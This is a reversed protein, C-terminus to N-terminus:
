LLHSSEEEKYQVRHSECHNPWGEEQDLQSCRSNPLHVAVCSDLPVGFNRAAAYVTMGKAVAECAADLDEQTYDKMSALKILTDRPNGNDSRGQRQRGKGRVLAGSTLTADPKGKSCSSEMRTKDSSSEVMERATKNIPGGDGDRTSPQDAEVKLEMAPSIM